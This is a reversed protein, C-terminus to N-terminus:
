KDYDLENDLKMTKMAYMFFRHEKQDMATVAAAYAPDIKILQELLYAQSPVNVDLKIASILSPNDGFLTAQQKNLEEQALVHVLRRRLDSLPQLYEQAGKVKKGIYVSMDDEQYPIGAKALAAEGAKILLDALDICSKVPIASSVFFFKLRKIVALSYVMSFATVTHVTGTNFPDISKLGMMGDTRMAFGVSFKIPERVSDEGSLTNQYVRSPVPLDANNNTQRMLFRDGVELSAKLGAVTVADKFSDMKKLLGLISYDQILNDDSQFLNHEFEKGPTGTKYNHLLYEKLESLSLIGKNLHGANTVISNYFTGAEGTPKGGSLLGLATPTIIHALPKGISNYDPYILPMKTYTHTFMETYYNRETENDYCSAIIYNMVGMWLWRDYNQFDAEGTFIRKGNSHYGSSRNNKIFADHYGGPLYYRATKLRLQLPTLMLNLIYPFIFAIRVTNMGRVDHNSYMGSTTIDFCHTDDKFGMQNRRLQAVAFPHQKLPGEPTAKIVEKLVDQWIHQKTGIGALANILDLKGAPLQTKTGSANYNWFGPNTELPDGNDLTFKRISKGYNSFKRGEKIAYMHAEISQKFYDFPPAKKGAYSHCWWGPSVSRVICFKNAVDLNSTAFVIDDFHKELLALSKEDGKLGTEILPQTDITLLARKEDKKTPLNMEKWFSMLLQRLELSAKFFEHKSGEGHFVFPDEEGPKYKREKDDRSVFGYPLRTTEITLEGYMMKLIDPISTGMPVIQDEGKYNTIRFPLKKFPYPSMRDSAIIHSNILM